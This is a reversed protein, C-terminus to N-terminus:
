DSIKATVTAAQRALIKVTAPQVGTVDKMWLDIVCLCNYLKCEPDEPDTREEETIKVAM